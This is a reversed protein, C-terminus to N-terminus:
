YSYLVSFSFIICTPCPDTGTNDELCVGHLAICTQFPTLHRGSIAAAKRNLGYM